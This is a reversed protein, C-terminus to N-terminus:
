KDYSLTLGVTNLGVTVGVYWLESGGFSAAQNSIVAGYTLEANVTDPLFPRTNPDAIDPKSSIDISTASVTNVKKMKNMNTPKVSFSCSLPM